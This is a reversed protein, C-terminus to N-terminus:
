TRYAACAPAAIADKERRSVAPIVEEEEALLPNTRPPLSIAAEEAAMRV